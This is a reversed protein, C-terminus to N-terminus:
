TRSDSRTQNGTSGFIRQFDQIEEEIETQSRAYEAIVDYLKQRFLRKGAAIVAAVQMPSQFGYRRVLEEYPLPESGELAPSLIRDNFVAWLVQRKKKECEAEMRRLCETLVARGWELDLADASPPASELLPLTKEPDVFRGQSPCRKKAGEARAVGIVFRHLSTLLFTRFRGKAHDARSILDHELVKNTVFAQLLDDAQDPPIGMHRTLHAKLAPLYRVLLQNLAQAHGAGGRKGARGVMTWDTTPFVSARSPGQKPM